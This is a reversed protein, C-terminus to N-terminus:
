RGGGQQQDPCPCEGAQVIFRTEVGVCGGQPGSASQHNIIPTLDHDTLWDCCLIARRLLAADLYMAEAAATEVEEPLASANGTPVPYCRYIGVGIEVDYLGNFCAGVNSTGAGRNLTVLRVWAQGSGDGHDCHCTCADAPPQGGNFVIPFRCVARGCVGLRAAVCRRIAHLIPLVTGDVCPDQVPPATM